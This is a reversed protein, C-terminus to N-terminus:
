LPIKIKFMPDNPLLRNSVPRGGVVFVRQPYEPWTTPDSKIIDITANVMDQQTIYYKKMEAHQDVPLLSLIYKDIMRGVDSDNIIHGSVVAPYIGHTVLKRANEKQWRVFRGKSGAVGLYFAPVDIDTEETADAPDKFAPDMKGLDSWISSWYIEKVQSNSPILGKLQEIINVQGYFNVAMASDQDRLAWEKLKQREERLREELQKPDKIRGLRALGIVMERSFNEMGGAASHVIATPVVGDHKILQTLAEYFQEPKTLDAVFAHIRKQGLTGTLTHLKDQKTSSVIVEAGLGHVAKTLKAGTGSAGGIVFIKERNLPQREKTHDSQEIEYSVM